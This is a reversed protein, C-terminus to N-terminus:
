IVEGAIRAAVARHEAALSDTIIATDFLDLSLYFSIFISISSSIFVSLIHALSQHFSLSLSIYLYMSLSLYISHFLVPSLSLSLSVALRGCSRRGDEGESGRKKKQQKRRNLAAFREPSELRM